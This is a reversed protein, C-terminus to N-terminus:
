RNLLNKIPYGLIFGPEGTERFVWREGNISSEGVTKFGEIREPVKWHYVDYSQIAKSIEVMHAHKEAVWNTLTSCISSPPNCYICLPDACRKRVLMAIKNLPVNLGARDIARLHHRHLQALLASDAGERDEGFLPTKADVPNCISCDVDPSCRLVEEKIVYM